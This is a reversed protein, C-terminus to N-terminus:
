YYGYFINKIVGHISTLRKLWFNVILDNGPSSWNRKKRIANIIDIEELIIDGTNVDPIKTEFLEIYDKLWEANPKGQDVKCWLTKWFNIVDDHKNFFKREKEIEKFVPEECEKDREIIDRFTNFVRGQNNRFSNNWERAKQNKM